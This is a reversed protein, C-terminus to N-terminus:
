KKANSGEKLKKDKKNVPEKASDKESNKPEGTQQERSSEIEANTGTNKEYINGMVIVTHPRVLGFLITDVLGDLYDYTETITLNGVAEKESNKFEPMLITELDKKYVNNLGWFINIRTHSLEFRRKLVYGEEQTFSTMRIKSDVNRIYYDAKACNVVPM